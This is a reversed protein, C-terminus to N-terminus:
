WSDPDGRRRRAFVWNESGALPLQRAYRSQPAKINLGDNRAIAFCDLIIYMGKKIEIQIAMAEGRSSLNHMM